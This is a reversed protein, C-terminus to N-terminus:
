AALPAAPSSMETATAEPTEAPAPQRSSRGIIRRAARYEAYVDPEKLRLPFMLRDLQTLTERAEALVPALRRTASAKAAIATRPQTVAEEAQRILERLQTLSAATVHPALHPLVSEAADVLRTALWTRQAVRANYFHTATLKATHLLDPLAADAAYLAVAAGVDLAANEMAKLIADRALTPAETPRSQLEGLANLEDAHAALRDVRASLGPIESTRNAAQLMALVARIMRFATAQRHTM